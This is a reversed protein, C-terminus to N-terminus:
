HTVGFKTKPSPEAHVMVLYVPNKKTNKQLDRKNVMFTNWHTVYISM